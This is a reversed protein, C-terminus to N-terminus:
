DSDSLIVDGNEDIQRYYFPQGLFRALAELQTGEGREPQRLQLSSKFFSGNGELQRAQNGEGEGEPPETPAELKREAAKKPPENDDNDAAAKAAKSPPEANKSGERKRAM